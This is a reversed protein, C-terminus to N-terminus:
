ISSMARSRGSSLGRSSATVNVQINLTSLYYALNRHYNGTAEFAVQVPYQFGTLRTGLREFDERTNRITIRQRRKKGPVAILIDHRHKSIDIAVRVIGDSTDHKRTM